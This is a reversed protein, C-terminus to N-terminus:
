GLEATMVVPHNPQHKDVTAITIPTMGFMMLWFVTLHISLVHAYLVVSRSPIYQIQNGTAADRRFPKWDELM